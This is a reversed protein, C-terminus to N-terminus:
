SLKTRSNMGLGRWIFFKAGPKGNGDPKIFMAKALILAKLLV